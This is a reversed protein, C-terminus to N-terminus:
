ENKEGLRPFNEIVAIITWTAFLGTHELVVFTALSDRQFVVQYLVANTFSACYTLLKFGGIWIKVGSAKRKEFKFVYLLKFLDSRIEILNAVLALCSALRCARM